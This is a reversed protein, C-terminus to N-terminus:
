LGTYGLEKAAGRYVCMTLYRFNLVQGAAAMHLASYKQKKEEALDKALVMDFIRKEDAIDFKVDDVQKIGAELSKVYISAIWGDITQNDSPGNNSACAEASKLVVRRAEPLDKRAQDYVFQRAPLRTPADAETEVIKTHTTSSFFYMFIALSAVCAALIEKM